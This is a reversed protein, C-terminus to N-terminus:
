RLRADLGAKLFRARRACAESTLTRWTRMGRRMNESSADAVAMNRWQVNHFVSRLKDKQLSSIWERIWKKKLKHVSRRNALAEWHWDRLALALTESAHQMM